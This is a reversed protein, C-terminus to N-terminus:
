ESKWWDALDKPERTRFAAPGSPSPPPAGEFRMWVFDTGVEEGKEPDLTPVATFAFRWTSGDPRQWSVPSDGAQWEGPAEMMPVWDGPDCETLLRRQM